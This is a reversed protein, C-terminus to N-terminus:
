PEVDDDDRPSKLLHFIDCSGKLLLMTHVHSKHLKIESCEISWIIDSLKVGFKLTSDFINVNADQDVISALGM